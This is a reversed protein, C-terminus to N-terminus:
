DRGRRDSSLRASGIGFAIGTDQGRPFRSIQIRAGHSSAFRQLPRQRLRAASQPGHHQCLLDRLLPVILVIM